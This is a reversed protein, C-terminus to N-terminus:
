VRIPFTTEERAASGLAIRLANPNYRDFLRDFHERESPTLSNWGAGGNHHQYTGKNKLGGNQEWKRLLAADGKTIDPIAIRISKGFERLEVQQARQRIEERKKSPKKGQSRAAATAIRESPTQARDKLQEWLEARKAGRVKKIRDITRTPTTVTRLTVRKVDKPVSLKARPSLRLKTYEEAKLPRWAKTTTLLTRRIRAM